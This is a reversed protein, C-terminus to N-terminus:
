RRGNNSSNSDRNRPEFRAHEFPGPAQQRSRFTGLPDPGTVTV